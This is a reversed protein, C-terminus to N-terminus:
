DTYDEEIKQFKDELKIPIIMADQKLTIKVSEPQNLSDIQAALENRNIAPLGVQEVDLTQLTFEKRYVEPPLKDVDPKDLEQLKAAQAIITSYIEYDKSSEAQALVVNAANELNEAYKHRLAKKSINRDSYFLNISEDFMESARQYKLKFHNVLFDVTARRGYQNDLDRIMLLADIYMQEELSVDLKGGSQVYDQLQKLIKKNDFGGFIDLKSIKFARTRRVEHLQKQATVDGKRALEMIALQEDALQKLKGASLHHHLKSEQEAAIQNFLTKNIDFYIAIKENSYGLGSLIELKDWEEESLNLQRQHRIPSNEM